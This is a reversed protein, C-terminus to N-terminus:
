DRGLRIWVRGDDIRTPMQELQAGPASVCEGSDAEFRFGHWPCVIVGEDIMGGDLSLGQHVCENRFVTFRNSINTVIFSETRGDSGELDFVCCPGM